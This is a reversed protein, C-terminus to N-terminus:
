QEDGELFEVVDDWRAAADALLEREHDEQTVREDYADQDLLEDMQDRVLQAMVPPELADLEWSEDGYEALYGGVRSDTLKAPNPPPEYEEVQDMNLAIRRVQFVPAGTPDDGRQAAVYREMDTWIDRVMVSSGTADMHFDLWDQTIFDTLRDRHDRTMDIGSPDHDGMYLMVVRQGSKIYRLFRQSAEYQASQSVYGRCAFWPLQWERAIREVVGALAEKEVWLEVRVPQDAWRDLAYSRGVADMIASPDAWTNPEDVERTRDVIYSWDLEGALRADNVISGLRKYNQQRNAMLGRAVFQYYLQRLTLDYGQRGYSRCIADAQQIVAQHEASFTKPKYTRRAM